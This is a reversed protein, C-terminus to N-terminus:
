NNPVQIDFTTLVAIDAKSVVCHIGKDWRAGQNLYVGLHAFDKTVRRPPCFEVPGDIEYLNGTPVGARPTLQLPIQQRKKGM